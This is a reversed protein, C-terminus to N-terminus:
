NCFSLPFSQGVYQNAADAPVGAHVTLKCADQKSVGLSSLFAGEAANRAAVVPTGFITISFSSDSINYTILYDSNDQVVVAQLDQDIYLATKYINNIVVSGNATGITITNGAPISVPPGSPTSTGTTLAAVLQEASSVPVGEEALALVTWQGGGLSILNWGGSPSYGLLAEGGQNADGWVQLAYPSAIITGGLAIQDANQIDGLFDKAVTPDQPSSINQVPASTGSQTQSQVPPLTGTQGPPINNNSSGSSIFFWIGGAVLLVVVIFSIILIIKKM